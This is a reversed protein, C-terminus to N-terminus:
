ALIETAEPDVIDLFHHCVGVLFAGNHDRLVAGGKDGFKSVARDSNIKVWGEEPAEWRRIQKTVVAHVKPQHANRWEQMHFLISEMIEHPPAIKKGDKAENRALWMGYTAQIM